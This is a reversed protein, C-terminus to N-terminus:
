PRVLTEDRSNIYGRLLSIVRRGLTQQRLEAYYKEQLQRMEAQIAQLREAERRALFGMPDDGLLANITEVVEPDANPLDLVASPGMPREVEDSHYKEFSSM